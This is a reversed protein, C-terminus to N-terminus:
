SYSSTNPHSLTGLCKCSPMLPQESKHKGLFLHQKQLVQKALCTATHTFSRIQTHTHTHDQMTIQNQTIICAQKTHFASVHFMYHFCYHGVMQWEPRHWREHPWEYGGGTGGSWHWQWWIMLRFTIHECKTQYMINLGIFSPLKNKPKFAKTWSGWCKGCAAAHRSCCTREGKYFQFSGPKTHRHKLLVAASHRTETCDTRGVQYSHYWGNRRQSQKYSWVTVRHGIDQITMFRLLKSRLPVTRCVISFSNPLLCKMSAEM